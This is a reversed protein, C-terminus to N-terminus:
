CGAHRQRFGGLFQFFIVTGNVEVDARSSQALRKAQWNAEDSPVNPRAMGIATVKGARRAVSDATHTQPVLMKSASYGSRSERRWCPQLTSGNPGSRDRASQWKKERARPEVCGGDLGLSLGLLTPYQLTTRRLKTVATAIRVAADPRDLRALPKEQRPATSLSIKASGRVVARAPTWCPGVVAGNARELSSWRM